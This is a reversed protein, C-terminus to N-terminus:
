VGALEVSRWITELQDRGGLMKALRDIRALEETFDKQILPIEAREVDDVLTALSASDVHASSWSRADVLVSYFAQEVTTERWTRADTVIPFEIREGNGAVVLGRETRSDIKSLIVGRAAAAAAVRLCRADYIDRESPPAMGEM